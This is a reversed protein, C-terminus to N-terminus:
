VSGEAAVFICIDDTVQLGGQKRLKQIRNVVERICGKMKLAEDQRTNLVVCFQEDGDIMELSDVSEKYNVKVVLEDQELVM